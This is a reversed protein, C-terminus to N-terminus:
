PAWAPATAAWRIPWCTLRRARPGASFETLQWGGLIQGVAGSNLRNSGAGVPIEFLHAITLVHQRDYDAPGYNSRRDFPNLLSGFDSAYDLAKSWTYAAQFNVGHSLRKSLSAQLSNYNNTLGHDYRATSATRGFASFFPQGSVGAGPDAANLENLFPLQRGLSGVYGLQLLISAPFEHQVQFNYTQVYPTINKETSFVAPINGASMGNQLQQAAVPQFADPGFVVDAPTFTNATGLISGTVAPQIGSFRYPVQFYNISYGARVVTRDNPAIAIGVRPSINNLDWDQISRGIGGTGAFDFTNNAPNYLAISGRTRARLPSFVDYRVGLDLTVGRLRGWHLNVRDAAYGAFNWQDVGPTVPFGATGIQSPEGLLFAAFANPFAGAGVGAGPSSTAGPGFVATGRPGFGLTNFGTSRLNRIDGGFRIQHRGSTAIWNNVLNYTNDLAEGSGIDAYPSFTTAGAIQIAPLLNSPVGLISSGGFARPAMNEKYRNYGLLLEGLMAPSFNHTVSAMANQAVLRTTTGGGLTEGLPSEDVVGWNSYGYKLFFATSESFRHDFRGDFKNGDRRLYTVAGFNNFLGPLNPAPLAGALASSFPNIQGAPIVNGAFQARGAGSATGTAPDFLTLGEIGSFDGQRMDLTPVTAFTARHDRDYTGEYSGFFFTRDTRLPGGFAGGFQNYALNTTDTPFPSLWKRTNYEDLSNFEFLSGHWNNTGARSQINTWGAATFGQEAPLSATRIGMEQVTEVPAVRIASGRFPEHNIVGDLYQRSLFPNQGTVSYFRNQAPDTAAPLLALPPLVGTALGNLEQHNWDLIPYSRVPRTSLNLSQVGSESQVMAAHAMLEVTETARGAELTVNITGPAGAALEVANVATRKFGASEVEVRYAGPALGSVSFNGDPGTLVRQSVNSQQNAISVAANPVGAGEATTVRGSLTGVVAQGHLVPAALLVLFLICTFVSKSM